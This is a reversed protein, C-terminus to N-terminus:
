WRGQNIIVFRDIEKLFVELERVSAIEDNVDSISRRIFLEYPSM